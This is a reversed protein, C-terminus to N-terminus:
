IPRYEGRAIKKLTSLDSSGGFPMRNTLLQYLVVGLSFLDSRGDLAGGTAQEPSMYASKGKVVGVHTRAIRDRAKAVGFDILKAVGDYSILINQPSVDRHVINESEGRENTRTHACELAHAIKSVVFASIRWPVPEGRRRSRRYVIKLDKGHIFEMAIFLQRDVQGQEYIRCINPHSLGSAIRAEDSFMSVFDTETSLRPLMRKVALLRAHASPADDKALFVEAMGGSNLHGLLWYRGFKIGEPV